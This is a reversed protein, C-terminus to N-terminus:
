FRCETFPVTQFYNSCLIISNLTKICAISCKRFFLTLVDLCRLFHQTWRSWIGKSQELFTKNAWSTGYWVLPIWSLLVASTSKYHSFSRGATLSQAYRGTFFGGMILSNITYHHIGYFEASSFFTRSCLKLYLAPPPCIKYISMLYTNQWEDQLAETVSIFAFFSDENRWM